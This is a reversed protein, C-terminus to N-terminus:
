QASRRAPSRAPAAEELVRRRQVVYSEGIVDRATEWASMWADYHHISRPADRLAVLERMISLYRDREARAQDRQSLLKELIHTEAPM